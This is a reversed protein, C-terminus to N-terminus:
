NTSLIKGIDFEFRLDRTDSAVARGVSGYGSGLRSMQMIVIHRMLIFCHVHPGDSLPLKLLWHM